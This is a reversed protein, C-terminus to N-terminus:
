LAPVAVIPETRRRTCRRSIYRYCKERGSRPLRSATAGIRFDPRKHYEVQNTGDAPGERITGADVSACTRRCRHRIRQRLHDLHISRYVNDATTESSIPAEHLM